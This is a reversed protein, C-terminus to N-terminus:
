KANEMAALLAAFDDDSIKLGRGGDHAGLCARLAARPNLADVAAKVAECPMDDRVRSAIAIHTKM